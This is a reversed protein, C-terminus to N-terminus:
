QWPFKFFIKFQHRDNKEHGDIVYKFLFLYFFLATEAQDIEHNLGM